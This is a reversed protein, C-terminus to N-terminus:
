LTEDAQQQLQTGYSFIVSISYIAFGIVVGPIVGVLLGIMIGLTLSLTKIKKTVEPCFPTYSQKISKFVGSILHMAVASVVTTVFATGLAVYIQIMTEVPYAFTLLGGQSLQLDGNQISQALLNHNCALVILSVAIVVAGLWFFGAAVRSLILWTGSAKQIKSQVTNM